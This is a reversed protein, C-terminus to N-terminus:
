AGQQSIEHLKAAIGKLQSPEFYKAAAYDSSIGVVWGQPYFLTVAAGDGKLQQEQRSVQNLTADCEFHLMNARFTIRQGHHLNRHGHVFAHIGAHHLSQRSDISLIPDQARYKTRLMNGLASFYLSFAEGQRALQFDHNLEATNQQVLRKAMVDDCGAHLFVFSGRRCLLQQRAIFWHFEGEPQLFLQQWRELAAYVQQLSLQANQAAQFFRQKRADLRSLETRIQVASLSSQAATEFRESWDDSLLLRAKCEAESPLLAREDESLPYENLLEVCLPMVKSGLRLLFHGNRACNPTNLTQVALQLRLDHNGSLLTLPIQWDILQRILRLLPLNAPGKDFCDGGIIIEFPPAYPAPQIEIPRAGQRIFLGSAVLSSSLAEADAHLDTLFVVLRDPWQWVSPDALTLLEHSLSEASDDDVFWGHQPDDLWNCLDHPLDATIWELGQYQPVSPQITMNPM